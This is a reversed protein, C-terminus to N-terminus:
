KVEVVFNKDNSGKVYFTKEDYMGFKWKENLPLNIDVEKLGEKLSDTIWVEINSLYKTLVLPNGTIQRYGILITSLLKETPFVQVYKVM